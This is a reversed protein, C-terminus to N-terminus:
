DHRSILKQFIVKLYPCKSLARRTDPRSNCTKLELSMPYIKSTEPSQEWLMEQWNVFVSQLDQEKLAGGHKQHKGNSFAERQIMIRNARELNSQICAQQDAQKLSM